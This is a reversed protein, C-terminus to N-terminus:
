AFAVKWGSGVAVAPDRVVAWAAKGDVGDHFDLAVKRAAASKGSHEESVQVEGLGKWAAPAGVIVIKEVRVKEMSKLYEKSRRGATGVDESMLTSTSSLYTFKRHMYAGEQYDFSEGDDLYLTGEADGSNGLVVVLTIPDYKM